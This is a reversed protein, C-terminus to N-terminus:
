RQHRLSATEHLAALDILPELQDVLRGCRGDAALQLRVRGREDVAHGDAGALVDTVKTAGGLPGLGGVPPAVPEVHGAEGAGAADMAGLQHTHATIQRRRFLHRDRRAVLQEVELAVDGRAAVVLDALDAAPEAVQWGGLLCVCSRVLQPGVRLRAKGQEAQHLPLEIGRDFSDGVCELLHVLRKPPNPSQRSLDFDPDRSAVQLRGARGGSLQLLEDAGVLGARATSLRKVGGNIDSEAPDGEGFAVRVLSDAPETM